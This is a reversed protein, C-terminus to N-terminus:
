HNVSFRLNKVFLTMGFGNELTLFRDALQHTKMLRDIVVQRYCFVGSILVGAQIILMGAVWKIMETKTEVIKKELEGIKKELDILKGDIKLELAKLDTKTTLGNM